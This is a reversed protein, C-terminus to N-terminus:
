PIEKWRTSRRTPYKRIRSSIQGSVKAIIYNRWTSSVSAKALRTNSILTTLTPTTSPCRVFPTAFSPVTLLMRPRFLQLTVQAANEVEDLEIFFKTVEGKEFILLKKIAGFKEFKSRIIDNTIQFVITDYVCVLLVKSPKEHKATYRLEHKGYSSM